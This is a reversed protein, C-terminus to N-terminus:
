SRISCASPSTHNVPYDAYEVAVSYSYGSSSTTREIKCGADSLWMDANYLGHTDTVAVANLFEMYQSATVEYKGINYEYDVAGCTRDPGWGGPGAGASVGSIEGANGLNGVPVTEISIAMAVAAFVLMAVVMISCVLANRM